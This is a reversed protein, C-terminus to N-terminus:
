QTKSLLKSIESDKRIPGYFEVQSKNLYIGLPAWVADRLPSLQFNTELRYGDTLYLRPFYSLKGVYTEGNVFRVVSYYRGLSIKIFIFYVVGLLLVLLVFVALLKKTLKNGLTNKNYLLPFIFIHPYGHIFCDLGEM